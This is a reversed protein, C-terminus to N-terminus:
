RRRTALWARLGLEDFKVTKRTIDNRFRLRRTHFLLWRKSTGAIGAAEAADVTRSATSVVPALVEALRLRIHAELEVIRGLLAPLEERTVNDVDFEPLMRARARSAILYSAIATM